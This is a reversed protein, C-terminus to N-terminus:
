EWLRSQQPSHRSMGGTKTRLPTDHLSEADKLGSYKLLFEEERPALARGCTLCGVPHDHPEPLTKLRGVKYVSGCGPCVFSSIPADTTHPRTIVKVEAGEAGVTGQVRLPVSGDDRATADDAPAKSKRGDPKRVRAKATGPLPASPVVFM